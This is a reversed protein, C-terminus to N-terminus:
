GGSNGLIDIYASPPLRGPYGHDRGPPSPVNEVVDNEFDDLSQGVAKQDEIGLLFHQEEVLNQQMLGSPAAPVDEHVAAKELM